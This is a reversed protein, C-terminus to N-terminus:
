GVTTHVLSDYRWLVPGTGQATSGKPSADWGTRRETAGEPSQTSAEDKGQKKIRLETSRGEDNQKQGRSTKRPRNRQMDPHTNMSPECQRRKESGLTVLAMRDAAASDERRTGCPGLQKANDSANHLLQTEAVRSPSGGQGEETAKTEGLIPSALRGLPSGPIECDDQAKNQTRKKTTSGLQEDALDFSNDEEHGRKRTRTFKRRKQEQEPETITSQTLELSGLPVM